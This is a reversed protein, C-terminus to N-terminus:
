HVIQQEEVIDDSISSALNMNGLRESIQTDQSKLERGVQLINSDMVPAEVQHGSIQSTDKTLPQGFCMMGFMVALFMYGKGGQNGEDKKLLFVNDLDIQEESGQHTNENSEIIHGSNIRRRKGSTESLTVSMENNPYSERKIM